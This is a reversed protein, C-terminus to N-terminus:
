AVGRADRQLHAPAARLAVRDGPPQDGRPRTGYSWPEQDPTGFTTHTRMFPYLVGSQLWRTYLEPTPAEAFGGIDMGVFSLGSLGMGLLTPIAGRM